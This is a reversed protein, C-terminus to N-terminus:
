LEDSLKWIEILVNRRERLCGNIEFFFKCTQKANMLFPFFAAFPFIEVLLATRIPRAMAAPRVMITTSAQIGRYRGLVTLVTGASVVVTVM